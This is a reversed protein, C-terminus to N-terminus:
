VEKNFKHGRALNYWIVKSINKELVIKRFMMKLELLNAHKDVACMTIYLINGETINKPLKWTIKNLEILDEENAIFWSCVGHVDKNVVSLIQGLEQLRRFHSIFGESHYGISKRITDNRGGSMLSRYVFDTILILPSQNVEWM